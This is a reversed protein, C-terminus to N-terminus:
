TRRGVCGDKYAILTELLDKLVQLDAETAGEAKQALFVEDRCIEQVM